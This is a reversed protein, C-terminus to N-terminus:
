EHRFSSSSASNDALADNWDHESPRLRQISPHLAIMERAATDGAHDADFGCHIHYGRTILGRLWRPNARVGATSICISPPHMQLCSIADIASECLVIDRGGPQGIWFYGADKRTGPAMGRWVREGTGRLEAGVPRQAKGALLLFVANGWGDAYLKGSQILPECLAPRLHRRGVLYDRVRQLLRDDRLPLKLPRDQQDVVPGSKGGSYALPAEATFHGLALQQELWAVASAFDLQALHMVLDIAGGGGTGRQWNSFKPGTVSLPGQETHWKARDRVDRVAGRWILVDKLPLQRVLDARQRLHEFNV